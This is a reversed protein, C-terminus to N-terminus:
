KKRRLAALLVGALAGAAAAAALAKEPNQKTYAVAKAKQAKFEVQLKKVKTKADRLHNELRARNEPDKLEKEVKAIAEKAKGIGKEVEAKVRKQTEKDLVKKKLDEFKDKIAM